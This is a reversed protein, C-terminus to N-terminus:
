LKLAKGDVCSLTLKGKAVGGPFDRHKGARM